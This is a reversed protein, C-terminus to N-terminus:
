ARLPRAALPFRRASRWGEFFRPARWLLSAPVSHLDPFPCSAQIAIPVELRALPAGLCYHIGLGFALHRNPQRALDLRDPNAFHREDRNASAIVAYVM